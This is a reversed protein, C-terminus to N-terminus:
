VNAMADLVAQHDEVSMGSGDAGQYVDLNYIRRCAFEVKAM